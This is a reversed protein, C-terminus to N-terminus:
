GSDLDDPILAGALELEASRGDSQGVQAATSWGVSVVRSGPGLTDNGPAVLPRTRTGSRTVRYVVLSERDLEPHEGLMEDLLEHEDDSLSALPEVSEIRMTEM